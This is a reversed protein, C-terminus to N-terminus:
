EPQTYCFAFQSLESLLFCFFIPIQGQCDLSFSFLSKLHSQAQSLESAWWLFHIKTERKWKTKTTTWDSLWMQSKIIGHAESPWVERGKVMEWLKSLGMDMLDMISGLWKIRQWGKRWRSEIKGLILTKELSDARWVLLGLIPAETEADTRGFFIWSENGQPNVPKIEKCDLPSELTKEWVVTWFCWNKLAWGEKHDLVWTWVHTSSFDYIQSYPGKYVFYHGQKKFISDLNTTAKRELLLQRKIEHSCDVDATIKSGLFIFDTVTEMTERDNQWSTIPGSGMIKTKQVNLKLCAKESEKDEDLPEKTRRHKAYRLNKINRGSIKIWAQAEDLGTNWM